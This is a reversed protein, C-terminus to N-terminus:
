PPSRWADATAASGASRAARGPARPRVAAAPRRRRGPPRRGPRRGLRLPRDPRPGPLPPGRGRARRPGRPPDRPAAPAGARREDAARRLVEAASAAGRPTRSRGAGRALAEYLSARGPRLHRLPRRGPRRRGRGAGRPAGPGHLRADRRAGRARRRPRRDCRSRRWTSTSSCRCATAPSWCTRRSSTATCSAATTRTSSRRPWAPRGVLRDGAAYPREGLARARGLPGAPPPGGRRGSGTSCRSWSPGRARRGSRRPDALVRALTVRGFYPM